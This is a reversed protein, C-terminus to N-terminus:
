LKTNVQVSRKEPKNCLSYFNGSSASYYGLLASNGTSRPPLRFNRMTRVDYSYRQIIM